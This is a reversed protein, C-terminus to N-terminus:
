LEIKRKPRGISDREITSIPLPVPPAPRIKERELDRVERRMRELEKSLDNVEDQSPYKPKMPGYTKPEDWHDQPIYTDLGENSNIKNKPHREDWTDTLHDYRPECLLMYGTTSSTSM